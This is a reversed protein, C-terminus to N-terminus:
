PTPRVLRFFAREDRTDNTIVNLGGVVFTPLL